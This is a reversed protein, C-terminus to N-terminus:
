VRSEKGYDGFNHMSIDMQDRPPTAERDDDRKRKGNSMQGVSSHSDDISISDSAPVVQGQANVEAGNTAIEIEEARAVGQAVAEKAREVVKLKKTKGRIQELHEFYGDDVPTVYEGSFVGVEFM